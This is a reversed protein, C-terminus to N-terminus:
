NLKEWKKWENVYRSLYDDTLDEPNTWSGLGTHESYFSSRIFHPLGTTRVANEIRADLKKEYNDVDENKWRINNPATLLEVGSFQRMFRSLKLDSCLLYVPCKLKVRTLNDVLVLPNFDKNIKQIVIPKKLNNLDNIAEVTFSGSGLLSLKHLSHDEFSYQFFSTYKGSGYPAGVLYFMPKATLIHKELIKHLPSKFM